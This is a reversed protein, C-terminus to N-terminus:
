VSTRKYESPTQGVKEKFVKTFYSMNSFGSSLAAETVSIDEGSLLKMANEIRVLNLYEIFTKHFNNKFFRCFYKTSMNFERSIDSLTLEYSFRSGIYSVIAKLLQETEEQRPSIENRIYMNANVLRGLLLFLLAKTELMYGPTDAANAAVIGKLVDKTGGSIAPKNFFTIKRETFPRIIKKQVADDAAFSLMEANFVMAYYHINSGTISHLEGSNIFILEGRTCTYIKNNVTVNLTGGEVFILETESHWHETVVISNERKFEYMAFPFDMKGHERIEMLRFDGHM